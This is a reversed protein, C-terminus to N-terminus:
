AKALAKSVVKSTTVTEDTVVLNDILAVNHISRFYLNTDRYKHLANRSVGFYLFIGYKFHSYAKTIPKGNADRQPQEDKDVLVVDGSLLLGKSDKKPLKSSLVLLKHIRENVTDNDEIVDLMSDFFKRHTNYLKCVPHLHQIDTNNIITEIRRPATLKEKLPVNIYTLTTKTATYVAKDTSNKLTPYNELSKNNM